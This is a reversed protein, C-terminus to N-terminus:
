GLQGDEGSNKFSSSSHGLTPRKAIDARCTTLQSAPVCNNKRLHQQQQEQQHQQQQQYQQQLRPQQQQNFPMGQDSADAIASQRPRQKELQASPRDSM